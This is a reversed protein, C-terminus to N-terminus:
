IHYLTKKKLQTLFFTNRIIHMGFYGVIFGGLVFPTTGMGFILMVLGILLFCSSIIIHFFRTAISDKKNAKIKEKNEKKEKKKWFQWSITEWFLIDGAILPAFYLWEGEISYVFISWLITAIIFMVVKFSTGLLERLKKM